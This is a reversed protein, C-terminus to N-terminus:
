TSLRAFETPLVGFQKKFVRTFYTPSNFGHAYAIEAVTEGKKGLAELTRRLRMERIVANPSMGTLAKIKRYTQAKSVGMESSLKKVDFSAACMCKQIIQFLLESLRFNAEDFIVANEHVIHFTRTKLLHSKTALDLNMVGPQGFTNILLLQRRAKEFPTSGDRDVPKGTVIGLRAGLINQADSLVKLIESAYCVADAPYIFSATFSGDPELVSTGFNQTIKKEFPRVLDKYNESFALVDTQVLTRFGVDVEGKPTLALDHQDKDGMGLYLNFEKDSIEIINCATLGHSELHVDRCADKNPGEMLCFSMKTDISIWYKHYTVGHKKQITLDKFHAEYADEISFTDSDVEHLDIYLPM